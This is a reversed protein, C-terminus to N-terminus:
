PSRTHSACVPQENYISLRTECGPQGCVRGTAYSTIGGRRVQRHTPSPSKTAETSTLRHERSPSLALGHAAPLRCSSDDEDSPDM